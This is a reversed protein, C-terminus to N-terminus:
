TILLMRFLLHLVTCYQSVSFPIFYFFYLRILQFEIYRLHQLIYLDKDRIFWMMILKIIYVGIFYWTLKTRFSSIKVLSFLMNDECTFIDGNSHSCLLDCRECWFVRLTFRNPIENTYRRAAM